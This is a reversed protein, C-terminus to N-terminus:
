YGLGHVASHEACIRQFIHSNQEGGHFSSLPYACLIDVDYRMAIENWLQELRIAAEGTGLTWLPPDCEGCLAVRRPHEGEGSKAATTILNDAVGLFRAPDPLDNVMFTSVADAADLAIYRGQEIAAAIDLGQAQLTSVLGVRHAETAVVIVASGASLAPEIFHGVARLFSADDRYFAVAHRRSPEVRPPNPAAVEKHPYTIDAGGALSSSVYVEGRLVAEVASLLESGADSKVVYGSGGTRLAEATIESSHIASVFLIRSRPAHERILRAAEIGNLTPLGVDLQILDPQLEEAKQVAELGDSVEGV